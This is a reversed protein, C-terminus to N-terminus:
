ESDPTDNGRDINGGLNDAARGLADGWRGSGEDVSNGKEQGRESSHAAATGATPNHGHSNDHSAAASANGEGNPGGPIGAAGAFASSSFAGLALVAATTVLLKKM